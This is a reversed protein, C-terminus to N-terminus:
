QAGGRQTRAFAELTRRNAQAVAAIFPAFPVGTIAVLGIHGNEGDYPRGTVPEDAYQYWHCGVIAPDELAAALYAAYAPGRRDETGVDVMGPWYPGRDASGVHFEGILVPRDFARWRAAAEAPSRGYVNFSLVDCWRACAQVVEPPAAAFRTGLYLHHPDRRRIAQAVTQFYREAFQGGFAVADRTAAPTLRTPWGTRRELVEAWGDLGAQDWAAAFASAAGYRARLAAVLAGKAFSGADLALVHLAIGQAPRDAEGWPMENGSFYGLLFPDDRRTGTMARAVDDAVGAFRPDFPDPLVRGGEMPVEASEGQVDYFSVAAMVGAGDLAADSWNGLTNFGWARLRQLATARWRAPWDPGYARDLDAEGADYTMRHQDDPRLYRALPTGAAPLDAFLATRGSVITPNSPQVADVGLSFFPHGSPTVLVWRGGNRVVRFFGTADLAPRALGGYHDMAPRPLGNLRRTEVEGADLRRRLDATDAAKEPWNGAIAQGFGDVLPTSGPAGSARDRLTPVGLRLAQETGSRVGSIHLAMVHHLDVAGRLDRIVLDGPRAAVPGPPRSRMGTPGADLPLVVVTKTAAPITVLGTLSTDGGDAQPEDDLRLLLAFPTSAPNDVALTLSGAGSWDLPQRAHRRLAPWDRRGDFVYATLGAGSAPETVRVGDLVPTAFADAAIDRAPAPGCLLLLLLAAASRAARRRRLPM